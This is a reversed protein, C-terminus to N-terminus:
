MSRCRRDLLRKRVSALHELIKKDDPGGVPKELTTFMDSCNETGQKYKLSLEEGEKSIGPSRQCM